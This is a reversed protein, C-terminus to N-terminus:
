NNLLLILNNINTLINTYRQGRRLLINALSNMSIYTNPYEIGMAKQRLKLGAPLSLCIGVNFFLDSRSEQNNVVESSDLATQSHPLYATFCEELKDENELWNRMALRVLQHMNFLNSEPHESIFAYAKLTGIVEDKEALFCMFKLYEAARKSHRLIHEFSILWTMAVANTNHNYCGRVEFDKSLLKILRKDSSQYYQLYRAISIGTNNIYASAQKITLPLDALFDLLGNAIEIDPMQSISGNRNLPLYKTFLAPKANGFLLKVDDANDIILIWSCVSESLVIKVLSRIDADYEEICNVNLQRGIRRYANEFSTADLAPVRFVSCDPYEDRVRFVAELAIQMKGVGALGEIAIRQCDDPDASPLIM